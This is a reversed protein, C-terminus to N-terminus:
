AVTPISVPSIPDPPKSGSATKTVLGVDIESALSAKSSWESDSARLDWSLEYFADRLRKPIPAAM